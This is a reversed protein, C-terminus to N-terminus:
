KDVLLRNEDFDNDCYQIILVPFNPLRLRELLALERATGYSSIAANLVRLQLDRELVKPFSESQGVGWGMAHSDGVVVISPHDLAQETDRLGQRNARYEVKHERNVVTCSSNPIFTYTLEADYRFCEPDFQVVARDRKISYQRLKNLFRGPLGDDVALISPHSMILAILGEIFLLAFFLSGMVLLGNTFLIKARRPLGVNLM